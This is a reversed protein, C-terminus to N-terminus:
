YDGYNENRETEQYEDEAGEGRNDSDRTDPQYNDETYDNREFDDNSERYETKEQAEEQYEGSEEIQEADFQQQRDDYEGEDQNGDYEETQEPEREEATEGYTEETGGCVEETQPDDVDTTEDAEEVPEADRYEAEEGNEEYQPQLEELEQEDSGETQGYENKVGDYSDPKDDEDQNEYEATEDTEPETTDTEPSTEGEMQPNESDQDRATRDDGEDPFEIVGAESDDLERNETKEVNETSWYATHEKTPGPNGNSSDDDDKKIASQTLKTQPGWWQVGRYVGEMTLKVQSWKTTWTMTFPVEITGQYVITQAKVASYKPILIQQNLTFSETTTKKEGYKWSTIMKYSWTAKADLSKILPVPIKSSIEAGVTMETGKTYEWSHEQTVARNYILTFSQQLETNNEPIDADAWFIPDDRTPTDGLHYEIDVSQAEEYLFSFYHDEYVPGDNKDLVFGDVQPKRDTRSILVTNFVQSKIRFWGAYQAKGEEFQLHNDDYKGQSDICGARPAFPRCWLNRKSVENVITYSKDDYPVIHWWQNVNTTDKSEHTLGGNDALVMGSRKSLIRVFVEKPPIKISTATAM